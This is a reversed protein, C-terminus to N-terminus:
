CAYLPGLEFGPPPPFGPDEEFTIRNPCPRHTYRNIWAHVRRVDTFIGPFLKTACGAGRSTLGIQVLAGQPDKAYLPGGSDGYCADRGETGACIDSGPVFYRPMLDRYIEKCATDGVIPVEVARARVPPHSNEDPFQEIGLRKTLGWGVITANRGEASLPLDAAVALRQLPVDVNTATHMLAVDYGTGNKWFAKHVIARNIRATIAKPDGLSPRAAAV